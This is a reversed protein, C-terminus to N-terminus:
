RVGSRKRAEVVNPLPASSGCPSSTLVSICGTSSRSYKVSLQSRQASPSASRAEARARDPRLPQTRGIGVADQVLQSPQGQTPDQGSRTCATRSPISAAVPLDTAHPHIAACPGRSGSLCANQSGPGMRNPTWGHCRALDQHGGSTRVQPRGSGATEGTQRGRAPSLAPLGLLALRGHLPHRPGLQTGAGNDRDCKGAVQLVRALRAWKPGPEHIHLPRDLGAAHRRAKLSRAGGGRRSTGQVPVTRFPRDRHM